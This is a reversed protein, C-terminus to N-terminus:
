QEDSCQLDLPLNGSGKKSYSKDQKVGLTSLKSALELKSM